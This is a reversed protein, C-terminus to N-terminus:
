TSPGDVAAAAVERRVEEVAASSIWGQGAADAAAELLDPCFTARTGARRVEELLTGAERDAEESETVDRIYVALVRGPHRRVVEAYIAADHQGSDGVLIFGLQPYFAFLREIAGLKHNRHSGTFLRTRDLGFDRLYMPGAPIGHVEMFRELLDYLNWPSSSVYFIPNVSQAGLGRELARYFAAVGRFPIRSEASHLLITRWNRVLDYAGTRIVTDDVDSIVGLRASAPPTLVKATARVPGVQDPLLPEVLELAVERWREGASPNHELSGLADFAVEFYGEEDATVESWRAGVNARVRAHPVEDTEFRHLMRLLNDWAGADPRPKELGKSELVRGRLWLRGADGHGRYPLVTVPGLWGFETQIAHRLEDWRGELRSGADLLLGKWDVGATEQPM